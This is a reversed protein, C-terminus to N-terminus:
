CANCSKRCTGYYDPSGIMFVPNKQCEGVAAWRSCNEDEDTCDSDELQLLVREGTISRVHFVKTAWWMEGELVPCRAHSSSRDLSANLHSNFFLLANGKTPRLSPVHSSKRCDSWIKNKLDSSETRSEPFLIQGGQSVNSLYFVITAMLPENLALSSKNGVYDYNQKADEPGVHLVQLPKSNETPLFTWASIKEEIRAVMDDDMTLSIGSTKVMKSTDDKGSGSINGMTNEKSTAWSILRDCEEESLFGRYLFVRPQWSLEIVQSPDVKSLVPHALQILNEQNFEKMRLEKRTEAYLTSFFCLFALVLLIRFHTAAMPPTSPSGSLSLSRRHDYVLCQFSIIIIIIIIIIDSNAIFHDTM